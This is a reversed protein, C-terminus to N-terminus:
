GPDAEEGDSPRQAAARRSRSEEGTSADEGDLASAAPVLRVVEGVTIERLSEGVRVRLAGRPSLGEAMGRLRGEETQVEVRGGRSEPSLELWRQRIPELGHRRWVGEWRDLAELLDVLIPLREQAHGVLLSLSTARSQLEQPFDEPAHNVNVGVGCVLFDLRNGTAGAEVLVGALKRGDCYCDNPWRLAPPRPLRSGLAEAVAIGAALQVAVGAEAADGPPRLLVSLYVGKGAPSVWRRRRRGRGTTQSDAVVVAGEPEGARGLDHAADNTSGVERFYIIDRAFRGGGLAQRIRRPLLLDSSAGTPVGAGGDHAGM